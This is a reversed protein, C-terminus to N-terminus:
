VGEGTDDHAPHYRLIVLAGHRRPRIEAEDDALPHPDLPQDDGVLGLAERFPPREGAWPHALAAQVVALGHHVPQLVGRLRQLHHQAAAIEALHQDADALHVLM